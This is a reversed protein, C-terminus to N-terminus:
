WWCRLTANDLQVLVVEEVEELILLLGTGGDYEKVQLHGPTKWVGGTGTYGAVAEQVEMEVM